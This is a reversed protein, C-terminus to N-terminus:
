RPRTFRSHRAPGRKCGPLLDGSAHAGSFQPAIAFQPPNIGVPTGDHCPRGHPAGIGICVFKPGAKPADKGRDVLKPIGGSRQPWLRRMDQGAFLPQPIGAPDHEVDARRRHDAAQRTSPCPSQCWPNRGTAGNPLLVTRVATGTGRGRWRPARRTAVKDTPRKPM